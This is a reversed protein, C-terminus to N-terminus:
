NKLFFSFYARLVGVWLATTKKRYIRALSTNSALVFTLPKLLLWTAYCRVRSAPAWNSIFSTTQTCVSCAPQLCPFFHDSRSLDPLFIIQIGQHGLPFPCTSPTPMCFSGWTWLSLSSCIYCGRSLDLFASFVDLTLLFPLPNTEQYDPNSTIGLCPLLMALSLFLSGPAAPEEGVTNPNHHGLHLSVDCCVLINGKSQDSLLIDPKSQHCQLVDPFFYKKKRRGLLCGHHPPPQSQRWKKREHM